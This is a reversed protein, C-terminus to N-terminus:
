GDALNKASKIFDAFFKNGKIFEACIKYVRRLNTYTMLAMQVIVVVSPLLGFIAYKSKM